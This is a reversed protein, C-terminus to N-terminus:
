SAEYSKKKLEVLALKETRNMKKILCELTRAEHEDKCQILAALTFPRFALVLKSGKGLAHMKLRHDLDNTIGTYLRSGRCNLLYVCWNMIAGCPEGNALIIGDVLNDTKDIGSIVAAHQKTFL